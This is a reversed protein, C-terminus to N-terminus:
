KTHEYAERVNGVAKLLRDHEKNNLPKGNRLDVSALGIILVEDRIMKLVSYPNFGTTKIKSTHENSPLIDKFSLGVASLIDSTNCGAFCNLLIRDGDGQKIGLSNSKDEHAPCRCSYQGNGSERVQDFKNLLDQIYMTLNVQPYTINLNTKKVHVM